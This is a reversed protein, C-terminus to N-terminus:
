LEIKAGHTNPSSDPNRVKRGCKGCTMTRPRKGYRMRDLDTDEVQMGAPTSKVFETWMGRAVTRRIFHDSGCNCRYVAGATETKPNM